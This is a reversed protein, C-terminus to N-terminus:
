EGLPGVWGDRPEPATLAIDALREAHLRLMQLDVAKNVIESVRRLFQDKYAIFALLLGVSFTNELVRQAGLWIVLISLFGMLLSNSTRFLLQLKQTTLQRNVTEVMLNLWHARRDDQANFLKITKSSNRTRGIQLDILTESSPTEPSGTRMYRTHFWVGTSAM